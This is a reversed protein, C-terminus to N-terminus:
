PLLEKFKDVATIAKEYEGVAKDHAVKADAIVGALATAEDAKRQKHAELKDILTHISGLIADVTLEPQAFLKKLL